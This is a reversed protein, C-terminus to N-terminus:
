PAGPAVPPRARPRTRPGPADSREGRLSRHRGAAAPSDVPRDSNAQQPRPLLVYLTAPDRQRGAMEPAEADWGHFFDARAPGRIAGGVDQAAMLRRWAGDTTAVYVPAGLPIFDPDVAISRRPTLPVGLAGPPGQDPPLDPMPRFFVYSANERMLAAAADAGQERMWARIAQMSMRERPIEGRDILLRGIPTYPHGNQAAYGLRLVRGDELVVRGSGQIQLFFADAPDALWALELGRGFLTGAEIAARPPAPTLRGDRLIGSVRRPPLGPIMEATNFEILEPPRAHLPTRFREDPALRGEVQPEFYGSLLGAGMVHPTFQAEIAARLVAERRAPAFRPLRAAVTRLAACPGAWAEPPLAALGRSTGSPQRLAACSALLAPLALTPADGRWGPLAAYAVPPPFPPGFPEAAHVPAAVLACVFAAIRM